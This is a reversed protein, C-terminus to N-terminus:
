LLIKCINQADKQWRGQRMDMTVEGVGVDSWRGRGCKSMRVWGNDVEGVKLLYTHIFNIVKEHSNM